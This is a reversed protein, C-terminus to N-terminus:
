VAAFPVKFQASPSPASLLKATVMRSSLSTSPLSVRVRESAEGVPPASSPVGAEAMRVTVLLSVGESAPDIRKVAPVALTASFAPGTDSESVRVPPEAPVTETFQAVALPVATAPSSKVAALPDTVKPSPSEPGFVIWTARSSSLVSSLPSDNLTASEDGLPPAPDPNAPM